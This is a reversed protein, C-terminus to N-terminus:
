QYNLAARNSWRGWGIETTISPSAISIKQIMWNPQTSDNDVGSTQGFGSGANGVYIVTGDTLDVLEQQNSPMGVIRAASLLQEYSDVAISHPKVAGEFDVKTRLTM